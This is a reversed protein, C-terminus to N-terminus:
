PRTSGGSAPLPPGPAPRSSAKAGPLWFQVTTGAGPASEVRCWGGAIEAREQMLSLGLHGARGEARSPDYGEGDDDIVVLSGRNV